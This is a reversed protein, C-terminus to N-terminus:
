IRSLLIARLCLGSFVPRPKRFFMSRIRRRTTRGAPGIRAEEPPRFGAHDADRGYQLAPGRPACRLRTAALRGCLAPEGPVHLKRFRRRLLLAGPLGVHRRRRHIRIQCTRETGSQPRPIFLATRRQLLLQSQRAQNAPNWFEGHRFCPFLHGEM